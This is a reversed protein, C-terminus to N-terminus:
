PAAAAARPSLRTCRCTRVKAISQAIL